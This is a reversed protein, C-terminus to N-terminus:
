NTTSTDEPLVSTQAEDSGSMFTITKWAAQNIDEKSNWKAELESTMKEYEEKFYQQGKLSELELKKKDTAEKDTSSIMKIIHFGFPSEVIPSIEGDKLKVAAEIYEPTVQDSLGFVFPSSKDAKYEVALEEIDAGAELRKVAKKAKEKQLKIDEKDMPVQQENEDLTFTEFLLNYTSIQRADAEDITVDAEKSIADSVKSALGNEQYVLTLLVDTIGTQIKDEESMQEVFLKAQAKMEEQEESTLKINYEDAKSALVKVMKITNVVDRKVLEEFTVMEGTEDPIEQGWITPGYYAENNSQAFKAYVWAEDMYVDAGNYSFLLTESNSGGSQSCGSFLGITLVLIGAMMLKKGFWNRM